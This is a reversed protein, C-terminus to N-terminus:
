IGGVKVVRRDKGVGGNVADPIPTFGVVVKLDGGTAELIDLDGVGNRVVNAAIIGKL